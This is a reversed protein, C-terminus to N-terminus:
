QIALTRRSGTRTKRLLSAVQNAVTRISRSRMRAIQDNSMGERLLALVESEAATLTGPLASARPDHALTAALRLLELRSSLGVKSAARGLASSVTSPSLGLGYAVLKTSIGRAAMSLVDVERQSLARMGRSQPANELVLYRRASGEVRSVLSYRGSVLATWLDLAAEADSRGERTRSHEIRRAQEGLLEDPLADATRQSRTGKLTLVGKVLEPRRRLRYASELHLGVQSLLLRERASALMPRDLGSSLVLSLGPEPHVIVGLMDEFGASQRVGSVLARADVSLSPDLESHTTVMAPPFFFVRFGEPGLVQLHDDAFAVLQSLRGTGASVLVRPRGEADSEVFQLGLGETLRLVAGMSDLVQRAWSADDKAPEYAAELVGVWDARPRLLGYTTM